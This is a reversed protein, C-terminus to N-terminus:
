AMGGTGLKALLQSIRDTKGGSLDLGYPATYAVTELFKMRPDERIDTGESVRGVLFDSVFIWEGARIDWPRVIARQSDYVRQATDSLRHEYLNTSPIANYHAKREDYIGFIYRDDNVDGITTLALILDSAFRNGTIGDATLFLNDDIYTYDISFFGNPDATMIEEIKTSVYESGTAVLNYVYASLWYFYGLCDLTITAQLTGGPVLSLPGSAEPEKNDHLYTDRIQEATTDDVTGGSLVKEIIGYKRQSEADEAIPTPQTTGVVPPWVDTNLRAYIVSVRNGIDLLPGRTESLGGVNITINNVFGAWSVQENDNYVVIDRGLGQEYWSELDSLHVLVTIQCSNYGGNALIEHTYEVYEKRYEFLSRTGMALPESVAIMLGVQEYLTPVTM